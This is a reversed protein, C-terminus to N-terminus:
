GHRVQEAVWADCPEECECEREPWPRALLEADATAQENSRNAPAVTIPTGVGNAHVPLEFHGNSLSLDPTDM